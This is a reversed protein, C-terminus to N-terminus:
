REPEWHNIREGELYKILGYLFSVAMITYFTFPGLFEFHKGASQLWLGIAGIGYFILMGACFVAFVPSFITLFLSSLFMIVTLPPLIWKLFKGSLFEFIYVTDQVQSIKQFFYVAFQFAFQAMRTRETFEQAVTNKATENCIANEVYLSRKKKMASSFPFFLDYNIEPSPMQEFDEKRIACFTGSASTLTHYRSECKMHNSMLIQYLRLGTGSNTDACEFQIKGSVCGANQDQLPQVIAKVAGEALMATASTIVLIEGSANGAGDSIARSRGMRRNTRLYKLRPDNFSRIIEDTRDTSEDSVAIIELLEDPYDLEFSNRIKEAIIKEENRATIILSVHPLFEDGYESKKAKECLIQLIVPYFFSYIIVLSCIAFPTFFLIFLVTNM